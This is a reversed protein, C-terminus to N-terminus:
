GRRQRGSGPQDPRRGASLFASLHVATTKAAQPRTACVGTALSKQVRAHAVDAGIVGLSLALFIFGAVGGAVVPRALDARM